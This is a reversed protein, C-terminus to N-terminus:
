DIISKLQKAYKSNKIRASLSKYVTDLIKKSEYLDTLAIYPSLEFESNRVAFNANHLFQRKNINVVLDEIIKLSDLDNSKSKEFSRKFLDLKQDNFKKNLSIYNRYISDNKSGKVVLEYGFNELNTVIDIKSKEAFFNLTKVDSGENLKLDIFLMEPEDLLVSFNIKDGSSVIFSDLKVFSSDSLKKLVLIGKKLGKVDLNITSKQSEDVCGIIFLLFLIYYLKM